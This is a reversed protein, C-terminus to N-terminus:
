VRKVIKFSKDKMVAVWPSNMTAVMQNAALADKIKTLTVASPKSPDYKVQTVLNHFTERKDMSSAQSAFYRNLMPFIHAIAGSERLQAGNQLKDLGPMIISIAAAVQKRAVDLVKKEEEHERRSKSFAEKAHQANAAPLNNKYFLLEDPDQVPDPDPVRLRALRQAENTFITLNDIFSLEAVQSAQDRQAANIQVIVNNQNRTTTYPTVISGPLANAATRLITARAAANAAAPIVFNPDVRRFTEHSETENIFV